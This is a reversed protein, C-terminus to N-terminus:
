QARMGCGVYTIIHPVSDSILTGDGAPPKRTARRGPLSSGPWSIYSRERPLRRVFWCDVHTGEGVVSGYGSDDGAPGESFAWDFGPFM